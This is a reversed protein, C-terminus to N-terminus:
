LRAPDRMGALAGIEEVIGTHALRVEADSM